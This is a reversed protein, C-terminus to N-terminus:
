SMRRRCCWRGNLALPASFLLLPHALGHERGKELRAHALHAFTEHAVLASLDLRRGRGTHAVCENRAADACVM